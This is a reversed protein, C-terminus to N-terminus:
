KTVPVGADGPRILFSRSIWLDCPTEGRPSTVSLRLATLPEGGDLRVCDGAPCSKLGVGPPAGDFFGEFPALPATPVLFRLRAGEVLEVFSEGAPVVVLSPRACSVNLELGRLELGALSEVCLDQVLTSGKTPCDPSTGSVDMVGLCGGSVEYELRGAEDYATTWYQYGDSATLTQHGNQCRRLQHVGCTGHELWETRAIAHVRRVNAPLQPRFALCGSM